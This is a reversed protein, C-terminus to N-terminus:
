WNEGVNGIICRALLFFDRIQVKEERQGIGGTGFGLAALCCFFCPDQNLHLGIKATRCQLGTGPRGKEQKGIRATRKGATGDLCDKKKSDQGLLRREEKGTRATRKRETRDQCDKKKSDKGPM